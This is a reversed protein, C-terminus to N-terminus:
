NLLHDDTSPKTLSRTIQTYLSLNIPRVLTFGTVTYSSNSVFVPPSRAAYKRGAFAVMYGGASAQSLTFSSYTLVLSKLSLATFLHM